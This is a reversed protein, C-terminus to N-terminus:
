QIRFQRPENEIFYLHNAKKLSVIEEKQSSNPLYNEGEQFSNMNINNIQNNM